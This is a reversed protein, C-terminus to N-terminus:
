FGMTLEVGNSSILGASNVGAVFAASQVALAAGMLTPDNPIPVVYTAAGAVPWLVDLSDLSAYLRCGPMGASGLDIGPDIKTTSIVQVGLLSSAPFQSTTLTCNAGLVPLSSDLVLPSMNADGTEFGGPLSVSIDVNGADLNPAVGAFGVLWANGSAVMSQWAYTVNGSSLHFQLQWTNVDTTNFSRVANWTVYAVSGVQEFTVTGGAMPNFDHWTGWRPAPSSLWEAVSPLYYTTNGSVPSVFGNSCVELSSTTGGPYSFSGSLAVTAFSDDNMTLVTASGSPPVFSGSPAAVYHNGTRVLTMTTGSLDFATNAMFEYFATSLNYCGTGYLSKAAPTGIPGSVDLSFSGQASSYGGVRVYYLGPTVATSVTSQLSCADDNCVLSTLSGCSGSLIQICSDYGAIGCTTVSLTGSQGAFYTFWVDSGGAACPWSPSSTLANVNSFPGNVGNVLAIANACDDNAPATPGGGGPYPLSHQDCAWILDVSHPTGDALNGNDDDALFVETVAAPQDTADAVITGVVIADTLAIAAARNGLTSALRDRLKWAFGMWSEGANHVESSTHYQRTNNGSRLPVGPSQFGSGLNPTDLLYLGFIDGWGESLGEYSGNSIGGYRDDIGHGWEHVVVTANATNTCGGGAQYFNITNNTYYANCTSGINVTPAVNDATNMQSSNGVISRVWENATDVWYTTNTHASQASTAGSTLLQITTNVGPNVTFNGSPASGGSITAHHRGDFAGVSINVASAINITFQGNDDTTVNGVGPVSLVLGPLPVNTLPDNADIGVNTWGRVTVTTNVPLALPGAAAPAGVAPEGGAAYACSPNGCDHKDNQFRLVVGSKADIYYRGITGSGDAAVNSIAVEWALSVSTPTASEIDGWIVLRPAVPRAPQAVRTPVQRAETWAIALATNEDLSPTTDFSDAIRWAQSGFMPVRGVQHVRVDARGGIVPLGRFYQDYVFAWTRGMRQGVVERFESAGLGLLESRQQLLLGAQRRAEELSDGRWGDLAIGSGLISRPTGTAPSWRVQWEGGVQDLFDAWAPSRYFDALALAVPDQQKEQAIVPLATAFLASLSLSATAARIM